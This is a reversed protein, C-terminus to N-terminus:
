LNTAVPFCDDGIYNSLPYQDTGNIDMVYIEAGLSMDRNSTFLIFRGDPTVTPSDNRRETNTLRTQKSGDNNMIYIEPMGDDIDSQYVIKKCDPTWQPDHNGFPPFGSDWCPKYTDTLQKIESGDPKSTFIQPSGISGKSIFAIRKGDPSWVPCGADPIILQKNSGDINMIHIDCSLNNRRCYAIKNDPSFRASINDGSESLITKNSTTLDYLIIDKDDTTENRNKSYVIRTDDSSWDASGCYRDARDLLTLNTGDINMSYLECFHDNTGHAFLVTKGSHSIVPRQCGVTLDTLKKQQSGDSNMLILNWSASNEIRRSIFLIKTETRSFDFDEKECNTILLSIIILSLCTIKKM